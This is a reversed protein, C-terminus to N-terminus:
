LSSNPLIISVGIIFHSDEQRIDAFISWCKIQLSSLNLEVLHLKSHSQMYNWLIKRSLWHLTWIWTSFGWSLMCDRRMHSSVNLLEMMCQIKITSRNKWMWNPSPDIAAFLAHIHYRCIHWYREPSSIIIMKWYRIDINDWAQGQQYFTQCCISWQFHYVTFTSLQIHSWHNFDVYM